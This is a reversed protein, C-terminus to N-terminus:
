QFRTSGGVNYLYSIGTPNGVHNDVGRSYPWVLAYGSPSLAWSPYIIMNAVRCPHWIQKIIGFLEGGGGGRWGQAGLIWSLNSNVFSVQWHATCYRLMLNVTSVMRPHGIQKIMGSLGVYWCPQSKVKKELNLCERMNNEKDKNEVIAYNWQQWCCEAWAKVCKAVRQSRSLM